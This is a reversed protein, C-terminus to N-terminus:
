SPECSRGSVRRYISAMRGAVKQWTYWQEVQRRGQAGMARAADAKGALEAIARALAAPDREPVVRGGAGLVEPIAGSDSGIVPTGCAHAEIIVRGFQEKWRPTTRSPLALLDIANMVAPLQELPRQAEFRVRAALGAAAARGRLELEMPGSGVLLLNVAEPVLRLADLLDALGKEEVLRGVYGVVFGDVGLRRRCDRRDMPRFLDADVANPVVEAPGGYGKSRVVAVAEHSRGVVYDANRLTYARFREFPFPLRKDLNQETESVVRCGPLLRNRLACAHVSVLGWPEEWLDIVDPRFEALVQRLRPYWHLYYQAPGCWAWRVREAQLGFSAGPEDADADRWRGYHFWRAPTLVRLRIGPTRGLWEAKPRGEARSQCTHSILLVRLEGGAPGGAPERDPEQDPERDVGERRGCETDAATM